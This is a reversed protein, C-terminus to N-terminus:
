FIFPYVTFLKGVRSGAVWWEVGYAVVILLTKCIEEFISYTYVLVHM